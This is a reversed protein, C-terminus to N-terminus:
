RGNREGFYFGLATGVLTTQATWIVTLLDKAQHDAPTKDYVYFAIRDVLILTVTMAITAVYSMLLVQALRSRTKERDRLVDEQPTDMPQKIPLPLEESAGELSIPQGNLPLFRSGQPPEPQYEQKLQYEEDLPM